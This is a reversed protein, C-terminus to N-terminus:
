SFEEMPERGIIVFYLVNEGTQLFYQFSTFCVLSLTAVSLWHVIKFKVEIAIL